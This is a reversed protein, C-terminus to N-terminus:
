KKVATRKRLLALYTWAMALFDFGAEFDADLFGCSDRRRGAAHIADRARCIGHHIRRDSSAVGPVLYFLTGQNVRSM